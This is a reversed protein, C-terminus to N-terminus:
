QCCHKGNSRQLNMLEQLLQGTDGTGASNMSSAPSGREEMKLKKNEAVLSRVHLFRCLRYVLQEM